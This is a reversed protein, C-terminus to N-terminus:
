QPAQFEIRHEQYDWKSYHGFVRLNEKSDAGAQARKLRRLLAPDTLDAATAKFVDRRVTGGGGRSIITVIREAPDIYMRMAFTNMDQLWLGGDRWQAYYHEDCVSKPVDRWECALLILVHRDDLKKISLRGKTYRWKTLPATTSSVLHYEGVVGDLSPQALAAPAAWMAALVAAAALIPRIM